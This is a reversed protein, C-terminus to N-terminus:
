EQIWSSDQGISAVIRKWRNEVTADIQSHATEVRVGGRTVFADELIKWGSHTLQEGMGSRVMAADDPHLYLHAGHNIHPLCNIAERITNLLIEPKTKLSQQVMKQAVELSLNLLDQAVAQDVQQLAQEMAALLAAMRQAGEAFGAQFGEEHAQRQIEALQAATPLGVKAYKGPQSPNGGFSGLNPLEWREYATLQPDTIVPDSM